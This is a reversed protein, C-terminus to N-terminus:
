PDDRAGDLEGLLYLSGTVVVAGAPGALELARARAEIPNAVAEVHQFYPEARAALDGARLSRANSSETAVLTPGLV